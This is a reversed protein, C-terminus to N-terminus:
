PKQKPKKKKQGRNTSVFKTKRITKKLKMKKANFICKVLRVTEYSM